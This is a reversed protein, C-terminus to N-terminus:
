LERNPNRGDSLIELWFPTPSLTRGRAVRETVLVLKRIFFFVHIDSCFPVILYSVVFLM